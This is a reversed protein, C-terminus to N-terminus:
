PYHSDHGSNDRLSQLNKRRMLIRRLIKGSVPLQSQRQSCSAANKRRWPRGQLIKVTDVITNVGLQDIM